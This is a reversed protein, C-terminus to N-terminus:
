RALIGMGVAGADPRRSPDQKGLVGLWERKQERGMYVASLVDETHKSPNYYLCADILRKMFPHYGGRSDNPFAWAGNAVENFFSAIGYEPHHKARGTMRAKVPVSLNQRRAEDVIAKQAANSEVCIICGKYRRWRDFIKDVTVDTSWRGIEIDLIVNLGDPRAEFTFFANEDAHEDPSFALDVGVFVINPGDYGSQFSHIGLERAKKLALEIHEAKCMATEDDRCICRFLRNYTVPSYDRRMKELYEATIKEPWLLKENSPDPDHDVLRLAGDVEDVVAPRLLDSDWHKGFRPNPLGAITPVFAMVDDRVEIEGHADMRLTAWGRGGSSAPAAVVNIADKPHFPTNTFIIKGDKPDIRSLVKEDMSRQVSERQDQTLTNEPSLVDDMLVWSLRSGIIRKGEVGYASLSADKIGLPREVTIAVDTWPDGARSSRRLHPFVMRLEASTEVYGRVLRLIKEAQEETASVVGGRTTYNRGLMWLTLGVVLFTKSSGVSMMIASRDHAQVFELFVRQHPALFVPADADFRRMVFEFFVCVDERALEATRLISDRLLEAEREGAKGILVDRGSPKPPPLPRPAEQATKRLVKRM